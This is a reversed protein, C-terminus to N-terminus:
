SVSVKQTETTHPVRRVTRRTSPARVARKPDLADEELLERPHHGLTDADVGLEEVDVRSPGTRGTIGDMVLYISSRYV